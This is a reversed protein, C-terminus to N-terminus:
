MPRRVNSLYQWIASIIIYTIPIGIENSLDTLAKYLDNPIRLTTQERQM